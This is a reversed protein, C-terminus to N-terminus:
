DAMNAAYIAYADAYYGVYEEVGIKKLEEIYQDFEDLSRAGTIFKATEAEIHNKLLSQLEIIRDNTDEDFFFKISSLMITDYGKYMDLANIRWYFAANNPDQRCSEEMTLVPIGSQGQRFENEGIGCGVAGRNFGAVRERLYQVAGTWKGPNNEIDVDMRSYKDNVYWGGWGDLLLDSDKFAGIWGMDTGEITMMWDIWRAVLEPHETKASVVCKGFSVTSNVPAIKKDSYQSTLPGISEFQHFFAPDPGIGEGAGACIAGIRKEAVQAQIALMDNTFYDKDLIGDDYLQKMLTLFEKYLPDAGPLVVEGNRLCCDTYNSWSTEFGAAMMFIRNVPYADAAGCLPVVDDGLAKFKYLVDVLEELTEPKHDYGIEKLLDVNLSINGVFRGSSAPETMFPPSYIAGDPSTIQPLLTPYTEALETMRPMLEPTIYPKLDLLQGEVTGYQVIQAPTLACGLIVDPLDDAAFTLTIYEDGNTVQDVKCKIGLKQEMFQWYHRSMPDESYDTGVIIGFHLTVDEGDKVIPHYGDLNIYGPIEALAAGAVSCILLVGMLLSILRKAM